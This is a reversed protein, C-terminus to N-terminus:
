SSIGSRIGATPFRSVDGITALLATTTVGSVGPLTM